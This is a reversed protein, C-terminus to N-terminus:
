LPPWANMGTGTEKQEDCKGQSTIFSSEDSVVEGVHTELGTGRPKAGSFEETHM